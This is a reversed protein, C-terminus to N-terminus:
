SDTLLPRTVQCQQQESYTLAATFNRTAPIPDQPYPLFAQLVFVTAGRLQRDGQWGHAPEATSLEQYNTTESPYLAILDMAQQRM